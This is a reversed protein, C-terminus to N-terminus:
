DPLSLSKDLQFPYLIKIKIYLAVGGGHRNRDKRIIVCGAIHIEGDTISHDLKSENIALVDFPSSILIFRIKDIHKHLSNINICAIKFGKIKATCYLPSGDSSDISSHQSTLTIGEHLTINTELERNSINISQFTLNSSDLENTSCSFSLCYMTPHLCM